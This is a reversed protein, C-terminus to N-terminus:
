QNERNEKKLHRATSLQRIRIRIENISIYNRRFTNKVPSEGIRYAALQNTKKKVYM